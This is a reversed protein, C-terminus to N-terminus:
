GDKKPLRYMLKYNMITNYMTTDDLRKFFSLDPVYNGEIVWIRGLDTVAIDFGIITREAPQDLLHAAAKCMGDIQKELQWHFMSLITSRSLAQQLTLIAQAANTVFFHPGAVKVVKGTVYWENAVKQTMVRIDMFRNDITALEIGRQVIYNEEVPAIKHVHEYAQEIGVIVWKQRGMQIDYNRMGRKHIKIIGIGQQGNCPKLFVLSYRSLYSSFTSMTLLDTQPMFNTISQYQNWKSVSYHLFSDTIAIDGAFNFLLEIVISECNPYSPGLQEAAMLAMKQLQVHHRFYAATEIINSTQKSSHTVCWCENRKQVTILCHYGKKTLRTTQLQAQMVYNREGILRRIYGYLDNEFVTVARDKTKVQYKEQQKTVIIFDMGVIPKLIIQHELRLMAYLADKSFRENKVLYPQLQEHQMLIKYQEIRGRIAHM